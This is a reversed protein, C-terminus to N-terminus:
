LIGTLALVKSKQDYDAGTILSNVSVVTKPYLEYDGLVKPIQYVETDPLNNKSFLLLVDGLAM